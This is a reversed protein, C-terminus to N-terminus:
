TWRAADDPHGDSGKTILTETRRVDDLLKLPGRVKIVSPGDRM